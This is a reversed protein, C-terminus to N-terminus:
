SAKYIKWPQYQKVLADEYSHDYRVEWFIAQPDMGWGPVSILYDKPRQLVIFPVKQKQGLIAFWLDAMSKRLFDKISVRITDTHYIVTGTGLAHAATDNELAKMFPYGVRDKIFDKFPEKFTYGYIGVVAKRGYQEIKSICYAVYNPPYVIDDDIIFHFGKVHDAWFFKAADGLALVDPYDNGIAITIKPHNLFSPVTRYYQLFVNLRDVQPLINEVVVELSKERWGVTSLSATVTDRAALQSGFVAQLIMVAQLVKIM